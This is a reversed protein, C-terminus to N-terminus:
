SPLGRKVQNRIMGIVNSVLSTHENENYDSTVPVPARSRTITDTAYSVNELQRDVIKLTDHFVSVPNPLLDM